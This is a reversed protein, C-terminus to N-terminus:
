PPFYCAIKELYCVFISGGFCFSLFTVRLYQDKGKSAILLIWLRKVGSRQILMLLLKQNLQCPEEIM